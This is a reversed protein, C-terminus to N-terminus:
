IYWVILWVEISDLQEKKIKCFRCGCNANQQKCHGMDNGQPMDQIIHGITGCVFLDGVFFGKELQDIEKLLCDFCERWNTDTPM